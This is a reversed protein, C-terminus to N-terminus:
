RPSKLGAEHPMNPQPSVVDVTVLFTDKSVRLNKIKDQVDATYKIYCAGKKM